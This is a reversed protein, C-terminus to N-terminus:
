NTPTFWQDLLKVADSSSFVTRVPVCFCTHLENDCDSHDHSVVYQVWPLKQRRWAEGFQKRKKVMALTVSRLKEHAGKSLKVALDLLVMLVQSTHIIYTHLSKHTQTCMHVTPAQFLDGAEAQMRSSFDEIFFYRSGYPSTHGANDTNPLPKSHGFDIFVFHLDDLSTVTPIGSHTSNNITVMINSNSVDGHTIKKRTHLDSMTCHLDKAMKMIFDRAGEPSSNPRTYSVTNSFICDESTQSFAEDVSMPVKPFVLGGTITLGLLPVVGPVDRLSLLVAVENERHAVSGSYQLYAKVVVWAFFEPNGPVLRMKAVCCSSQGGKGNFGVQTMDYVPVTVAM